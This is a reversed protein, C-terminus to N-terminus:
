VVYCPRICYKGSPPLVAHFHFFNSRPTRTGLSGRLDALDYKLQTRLPLELDEQTCEHFLSSFNMALERCPPSQFKIATVSVRLGWWEVGLDSVTRPAGEGSFSVKHWPNRCMLEQNWRYIQLKRMSIGLMIPCSNVFVRCPSKECYIQWNLDQLFRVAIRLNLDVSSSWYIM